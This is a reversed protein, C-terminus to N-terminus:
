RGVQIIYIYIYIYIYTWTWTGIQVLSVLILRMWATQHMCSSLCRSFISSDGLFLLESIKDNHNKAPLLTLLLHSALTAPEPEIHLLMPALGASCVPCDGLWPFSIYIYIIYIYIYIYLARVSINPTGPELIRQTNKDSWVWVLERFEFNFSACCKFGVIMAALIGWHM